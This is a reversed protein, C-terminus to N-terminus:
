KKYLYFKKKMLFVPQYTFFIALIGALSVQFIIVGNKEFFLDYGLSILLLFFCTIGVLLIFIGNFISVKFAYRLWKFNKIFEFPLKGKEVEKYVHKVSDMTVFFPLLFALPLFVKVLSQEGEIVRLAEYNKLAFFQIVFNLIINIM